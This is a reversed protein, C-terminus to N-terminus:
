YEHRVIKKHNGIYSEPTAEIFVSNRYHGGLLENEYPITIENIVLEAAKEIAEKSDNEPVIDTRHVTSWVTEEMNHLVRRTGPKTIGRYGGEIIQKGDNESLVIVKGKSVFFPHKFRHILTTFRSGAPMTITRTYLGDTFDHELPAQILVFEGSEVMENIMVYEVMDIFDNSTKIETNSIQTVESM